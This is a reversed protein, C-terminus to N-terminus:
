VVTATVAAAAEQQQQQERGVRREKESELQNYLLFLAKENAEPTGVITFMREGTEDHPTKAISIKSGSLRRIETIKTGQRGIICGVMDRPISINLSADSAYAGASPSARSAGNWTRRLSQSTRIGTASAALAPSSTAPSGGTSPCWFALVSEVGASSLERRRVRIRSLSLVHVYNRTRTVMRAVRPESPEISRGHSRVNPPGYLHPHSRSQAGDHEGPSPASIILPQVQPVGDISGTVTLVLEHAGPVVKSVGAKVGNRIDAVNKKPLPVNSRLPLFPFDPPFLPRAPLHLSPPFSSSPHTRLSSDPVPIEREAREGASDLRWMTSWDEDEDETRTSSPARLAGMVAVCVLRTERRSAIGRRGRATEVSSRDQGDSTTSVLVDDRTVCIQGKAAAGRGEGRSSGVALATAGLGM